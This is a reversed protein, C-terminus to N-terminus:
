DLYSPLGSEPNLLLCYRVSRRALARMAAPARSLQARKSLVKLSDDLQMQGDHTPNRRSLLTSFSLGSQPAPLPCPIPVASVLSISILVLALTVLGARFRINSYMITPGASPVTFLALVGSEYVLYSLSHKDRGLHFAWEECHGLITKKKDRESYNHVQLPSIRHSHIYSDSIGIRRFM